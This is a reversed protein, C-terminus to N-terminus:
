NARTARWAGAARGATWTGTLMRGDPALEGAFTGTGLRGTAFGFNVQGGTVDGEVDGRLRPCFRQASRAAAEGDGFLRRGTQELRVRGVWNCRQAWDIEVRWAGTIDVVAHRDARAVLQPTSALVFMILASAIWARMVAFASGDLM